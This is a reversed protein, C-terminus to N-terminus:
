FHFVGLSNAIISGIVSVLLALVIGILILKRRAEKRAFEQVYDGWCFNYTPYYRLALWYCAALLTIACLTYVTPAFIAFFSYDPSNKQLILMAEVPDTLKGQSWRAELQVLVDQRKSYLSPLGAFMSVMLAIPILITAVFRSSRKSLLQSPAFRRLKALREEFLSSSVFVWDRSKAHIRYKMSVAEAQQDSDTNAFELTLRTANKGKGVESRFRLRTIRTSGTNEEQLVDEISTTEAVAGNDYNIQFSIAPKENPHIKKFQDEAITQLRRLDQETIVFGSYYAKSSEVGITEM